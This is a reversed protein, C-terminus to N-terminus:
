LIVVGPRWLSVRVGMGPRLAVGTYHAGPFRAHLDGGRAVRLVAVRGDPVQRVDLVLAELVNDRVDPGLRRDPYVLKVAEPRVYVEVSAGAATPAATPV